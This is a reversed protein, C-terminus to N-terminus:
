SRMKGVLQRMKRCFNLDPNVSLNEDAYELWKNTEDKMKLLEKLEQREIDELTRIEGKKGNWAFDFTELEGLDNKLIAMQM